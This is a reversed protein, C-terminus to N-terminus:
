SFDEDGQRPLRTLERAKVALSCNDCYDRNALKITGFMNCGDHNVHCHIGHLRYTEGPMPIDTNDPYHTSALGLAHGIEHIVTNQIYTSRDSAPKNDIWRICIAACPGNVQLGGGSEYERLRVKLDIGRTLDVGLGNLGNRKITLKFRNATESWRLELRSGSATVDHWTGGVNRVWAGELWNGPADNERDDLLLGTPLDIEEPTTATAGPEGVWFTYDAPSPPDWGISDVFALQVYRGRRQDQRGDESRMPRVYDAVEGEPLMRLHLPQSDDDISQLEIFYSQYATALDMWNFDSGFSGGGIRHMEEIEVFVKRWVRYTGAGRSDGTEENSCRVTLEDGGYQSLYFDVPRTWGHRNTRSQHSDSGGARGFGAKMSRPLRDYYGDSLNSREDGSPAFRWHVIRGRLSGQGETREIRAKLRVFRGRGRHPGRDLNILQNRSYDESIVEDAAELVEVVEVVRYRFLCPEVSCGRRRRTSHSHGGHEDATDVPNTM